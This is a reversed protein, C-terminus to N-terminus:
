GVIFWAGISFAQMQTLRGQAAVNTNYLRTSGNRYGRPYTHVTSAMTITPYPLPFSSPLRHLGQPMTPSPIKNLFLNHNPHHQQYIQHEQAARMHSSKVKDFVFNKGLVHCPLDSADVAFMM